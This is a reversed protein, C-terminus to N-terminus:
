HYGDGEYTLAPMLGVNNIHCAIYPLWMIITLGSTWALIEIETTM